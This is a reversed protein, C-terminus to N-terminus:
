SLNLNLSLIDHCLIDINSIGEINQELIDCLGKDIEVALVKKVNAAIQRTIEGKGAGIELVTDSKTLKLCAIIKKRINQDVLFNQGLRKKPKPLM